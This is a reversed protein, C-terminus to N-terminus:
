SSGKMDVACHAGSREAEFREGFSSLLLLQVHENERFIKRKAIVIAKVREVSEQCVSDIKRGDHFEADLPKEILNAGNLPTVRVQDNNWPHLDGGVIVPGTREQLTIEGHV